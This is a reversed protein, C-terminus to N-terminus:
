VFRDTGGDVCVRVAAKKWLKIIREENIVPQNLVLLAYSSSFLEGLNFVHNQEM